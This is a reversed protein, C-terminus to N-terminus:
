INIRYKQRVFVWILLAECAYAIATATAAGYLEIQPILMINCIVNTVVVLLILVTFTGPNDGMILAGIFPKYLANLVIGAALIGFVVQGMEPLDSAPAIIGLAYPYLITSLVALFLMIPVFKRQVDRVLSTVDDMRGSAFAKGLLPDLNWRLVVSLQAFGEAILAAMSYIGILRNNVFLGLMLIDVRTNFETLIGSFMGRLGFSVHEFLDTRTFTIQLRYFLCIHRVALLVFLAGEGISLAYSLHADSTSIDSLYFIGLFIGLVRLIQFSAFTKIYGLGNLNAMFIKNIAFFGIGPVVGYLAEKVGSNYFSAVTPIALFVFCLVVCSIAGVLLLASLMIELARQLDQQNHAVGKLTSAQIGLVAVQSCIIYFAFAQNFIGLASPTYLSAIVVNIGVGALAVVGFAIVSFAINLSHSNNRKTM